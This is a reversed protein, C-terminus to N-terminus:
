FTAAMRPPSSMGNHRVLALYGTTEVPAIQKGKAMLISVEDAPLPMAPCQAYITHYFLYAM